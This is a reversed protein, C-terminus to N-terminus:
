VATEEILSSQAMQQARNLRYYVGQHRLLEDHTGAEVIRGADIVIIRDADRITSLRHAIVFATRGKLLSLLAEQIHKETETDVSATAEDLILIRPNALLTRGFALLQRQGASLKAGREEVETDWGDPFQRIFRDLRVAKAAQELEEQTADPKGYLLNERITGSFIFSDQLVIGIQNRLSSLTADRLDTGDITICGETVDYFRMLLNIISSKGAGTPGVLAVTQGKRVQFDIDHLAYPTSDSYRFSVHNFAVEGQIEPLEAADTRDVIEAKTDLIEFIRDASAMASLVQSYVRSLASLPGWFRWLYNIFAIIAGLTILGNIVQIAGYWIVVCTGVMGILEVIPWMTSELRIARLNAKLNKALVTSFQANNKEERAFAQIVRIGQITENLNGNINSITRRTNLWATELKPQLRGVILILFPIVIFSMLALKWDMFLMIALIGILNTIEMILTILGNNILDGIASVDNTIRSMIKGAPRGDFFRFSLTQLHEFLEERLNFLLNQGTHNVLRIRGYGLLTGLLQEAILALVIMDLVHMNGKSIGSDIAVKILYPEALSLVMGIIVLVGVIALVHRFPKTYGIMRKLYAKNFPKEEAEDQELDFDVSM